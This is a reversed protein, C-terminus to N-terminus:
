LQNTVAVVPQAATVPSHRAAPKRAASLLGENISLKVTLAGFFIVLVVLVVNAVIMEKRNM